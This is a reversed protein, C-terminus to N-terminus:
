STVPERAPLPAAEALLGHARLDQWLAQPIPTNFAALNAAVEAPSSMGPIVCAVAPHALPFQLAAAALPIDHRACVQALARVRTVVEPPAAAYNYHAGGTLIGSNYPGGAIVSVNRALCLPLFSDLATQELVTYRGALLVCDLDAHALVEECVQWENVGLGIAGTRGDAKLQAMARYGGDLFTKLHRPHDDGHTMRGLDHALLIDIRDRGLRRCSDDFSRMVGDYSYDYVPEFPDGDIFGHRETGPPQPAIPNLVRGVKSSVIVGDRLARGVRREALGQGYHPATDAYAIGADFAAELTAQADSDSLRQYLNGIGATGIGLRSVAVAGAGLRRRDSLAPPRM